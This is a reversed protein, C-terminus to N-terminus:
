ISTDKKNRTNIKENEKKPEKPQFIQATSLSPTEILDDLEHKFFIAANQTHPISKM